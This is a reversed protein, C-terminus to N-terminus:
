TESCLGKALRRFIRNFQPLSQDFKNFELKFAKAKYAFETIEREFTKSKM